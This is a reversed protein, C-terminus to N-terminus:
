RLERAIEEIQSPRWLVASVSSCADLAALWERQAPTPRGRLTKLEAFILRKGRVLTLDPFGPVSRRSDHTHYARWGFLAALHEVQHQFQAESIPRRPPPNVVRVM